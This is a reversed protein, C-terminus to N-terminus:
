EGRGESVGAADSRDAPNPVSAKGPPPLMRLASRAAARLDPDPDHGVMKTVRGRAESCKLACVTALAIKRVDASSDDLSSLAIDKYEALKLDLIYMLVFMRVFPDDSHARAVVMRKAPAYSRNSLTSIAQVQGTSSLSDVFRELEQLDGADALFETRRRIARHQRLQYQRYGQYFGTGLLVPLLIGITVLFAKSPRKM